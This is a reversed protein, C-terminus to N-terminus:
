SNDLHYEGEKFGIKMWLQFLYVVQLPKYVKKKLENNFKPIDFISFGM